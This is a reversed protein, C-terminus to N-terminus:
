LNVVLETFETRSLKIGSNALRDARKSYIADLMLKKDDKVGCHIRKHCIPCLCVVNAYVDLSKGFNPQLKMPIAHHSEMYPLKNKKLLLLKINAMLKVHMDQM